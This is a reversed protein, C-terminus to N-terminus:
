QGDDDKTEDNTAAYMAEEDVDEDEPDISVNHFLEYADLSPSFFEVVYENPVGMPQAVEDLLARIFAARQGAQMQRSTEDWLLLTGYIGERTYHLDFKGITLPQEQEDLQTLDFLAYQESSTTRVLRKLKLNM